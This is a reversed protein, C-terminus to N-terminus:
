AVEQDVSDDDQVLPLRVKPREGSHEVVEDYHGQREFNSRDRLAPVSFIAMSACLKLLLVLERVAYIRHGLLRDLLETRATQALSRFTKPFPWLAVMWLALRLGLAGMPSSSRMMLAFAQAFDVELPRVSFRSEHDQPAFSSLVAQAWRRELSLM